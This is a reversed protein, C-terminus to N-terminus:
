FYSLYVTIMGPGLARVLAAMSQAIGNVLGLKQIEASNNILVMISTYGCLQAVIKFFQVSFLSTWILVQTRVQLSLFSGQESSDSPDSVSISPIFSLAICCPAFLIMSYCFLQTLPLRIYKFILTQFLVEILGCVALTIGIQFELFGLGGEKGPLFAWINFIEDVICGGFALLSYSVIAHITQNSLKSSVGIPVVDDDRPILSDTDNSFDISASAAEDFNSDNPRELFNGGSSFLLQQSGVSQKVSTSDKNKGNRRLFSMSHVSSSLYHSVAPYESINATQRINLLSAASVSVVSQRGASTGSDIVVPNSSSASCPNEISTYAQGNNAHMGSSVSINFKEDLRNYGGKTQEEFWLALL